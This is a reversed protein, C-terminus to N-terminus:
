VTLAVIRPDVQVNHEELYHIYGQPIVYVTDKGANYRYEVSGNFKDCCRCLSPGRYQVQEAKELLRKVKAINESSDRQKGVVPMPFQPYNNRNDNWHGIHVINM